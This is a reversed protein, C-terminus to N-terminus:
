KEIDLPWAFDIIDTESQYGRLIEEHSWLFPENSLCLGMFYLIRGLQFDNLM